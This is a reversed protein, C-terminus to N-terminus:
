ECHAAPLRRPHCEHFVRASVHQCKYMNARWHIWVHETKIEKYQSLTHMQPPIVNGTDHGAAQKIKGREDGECLFRVNYPREISEQVM